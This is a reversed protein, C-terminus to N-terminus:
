GIEFVDRDAPRANEYLVFDAGRGKLCLPPFM